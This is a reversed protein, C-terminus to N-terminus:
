KEILPLVFYSGRVRRLLLRFYYQVRRMYHYPLSLLWRFNQKVLQKALNGPSLDQLEYKTPVFIAAVVICFVVIGTKNKCPYSCQRLRDYLLYNLVFKDIVNLKEEWQNSRITKAFEQETMSKELKINSLSDGWWRLGNWTSKMVEERFSIGLWKCVEKMVGEDSLDELRIMRFYKGYDGLPQPEDIIRKLIYLPYSPNHAPTQHRRWNEVGSVYAARPDRTMCIIKCNPFDNIIDPVKKIHHIHDFFLKKVNINQNAALAYAVYVAQSFYRTNLPKVSLLGVLHQRFVPVSLDISQDMNEGLVDRREFVDYVTKLKHIHHGIFEDVIDEPNLDGKINATDSGKWFSHLYIAGPILFVDPHSDLQSQFADSGTRGSAVLTCWPLNEVKNWISHYNVTM